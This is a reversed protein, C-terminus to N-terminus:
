TGCNVLFELVDLLTVWSCILNSAELLNLLQHLLLDATANNKSM